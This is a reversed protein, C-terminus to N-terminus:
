KLGTNKWKEELKRKVAELPESPEGRREAILALDELDELLEQYQKIPLVVAQKRGKEDVLFRIKERPM